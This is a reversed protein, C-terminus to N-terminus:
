GLFFIRYLAVLAIISWAINVVLSSWATKKYTYYIFATGGLLNLLQYTVSSSSLIGFTNLGFASLVLVAAIDGDIELASLKKFM